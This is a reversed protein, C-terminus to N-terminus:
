KQLLIRITVRSITGHFSRPIIMSAGGFTERKGFDCAILFLATLQQRHRLNQLAKRMFVLLLGFVRSLARCLKISIPWPYLSRSYIGLIRLFAETLSAPRLNPTFFQHDHFNLFQARSSHAVSRCDPPRPSDSPGFGEMRHIKTIGDRPEHQKRVRRWGNSALYNLIGVVTPVGGLYIESNRSRHTFVMDTSM